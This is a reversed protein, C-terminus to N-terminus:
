TGWTYGFMYPYFMFSAGLEALALALISTGVTACAGTVPLWVVGVCMRMAVDCIM